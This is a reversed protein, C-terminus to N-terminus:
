IAAHRRCDRQSRTAILRALSGLQRADLELEYLVSYFRREKALGQESLNRGEVTSRPDLSQNRISSKHAPIRKQKCIRAVLDRNAKSAFRLENGQQIQDALLRATAESLDPLKSPDILELRKM